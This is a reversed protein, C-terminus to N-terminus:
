PMDPYTMDPYPEADSCANRVACPMRGAEYVAAAPATRATSSVPGASAMRRRYADARCDYTVRNAYGAGSEMDGSEMDRSDGSEMDGNVPEECAGSCAEEGGGAGDRPAVESGAPVVPDVVDAERASADVRSAGAGAVVGSADVPFAGAEGVVGSAGTGFTGAAASVVPSADAGFTGDDRSVVPSADAGFTGDDRSVVPSADV